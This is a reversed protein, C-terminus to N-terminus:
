KGDSVRSLIGGHGFTGDPHATHCNDSVLQARQRTPFEIRVSLYCTGQYHYAVAPYATGDAGEDIEPDGPLATATGELRRVQGTTKLSDVVRFQITRASLQVVRLSQRLTDDEFRYWTASPAPRPPAAARTALPAPPAVPPVAVPAKPAAQQRSPDAEAPAEQCSALLLGTGMLWLVPSFASSPM